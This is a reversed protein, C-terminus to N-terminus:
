AHRALYWTCLAIPTVAVGIVVAFAILVDMASTREQPRPARPARQVTIPSLELGEARRFAAEVDFDSPQVLDTGRPQAFIDQGNM